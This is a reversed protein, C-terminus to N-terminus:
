YTVRDIKSDKEIYNILSNIFRFLAIYVVSVLINM